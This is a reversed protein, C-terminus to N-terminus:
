ESEKEYEDIIEDSLRSGIEFPIEQGCSPCYYEVIDGIDLISSWGTEPTATMTATVVAGIEQKLDHGCTHKM